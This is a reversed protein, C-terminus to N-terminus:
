YDALEPDRGLPCSRNLFAIWLDRHLVRGVFFASLAISLFRSAFLRLNYPSPVVTVHVAIFHSNRPYSLLCCAAIFVESDDLDGVRPALRPDSIPKALSPLFAGICAIGGPQRPQWAPALSM